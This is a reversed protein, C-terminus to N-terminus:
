WIGLRVREVNNADYVRILSNNIEMRQGSTSSRIVITGDTGVQFRSNINMSGATVHGLNASIASLQQVNIKDATLSSTVIAGGAIQTAGGVQWDSLETQFDGAQSLYARTFMFDGGTEGAVNDLRIMFRVAAANAPATVIGGLKEFASLSKIPTTTANPASQIAAAAFNISAGNADLFNLQVRAVCKWSRVYAFAEYKKGPLVPFDRITDNGNRATINLNSIATSPQNVYFTGGPPANTGNNIEFTGGSASWYDTTTTSADSNDLWNGGVGFLASRASISGDAIMNGNMVLTPTGNVNGVAFMQKPTAANGGGGPKVIKFSDVLFTMEALPVGNNETAILGYGSVYGNNDVKVTYKSEINNDADIRAQAEIAIAAEIQDSVDGTAIEEATATRVSIRHFLISKAAGPQGMATPYNGLVILGIDSIAESSLEPYPLVMRCVYRNSVGQREMIETFKLPKDFTTAGIKRLILGSANLSGSFLQLDVEVVYHSSNINVFRSNAGTSSYEMLGFNATTSTVNFQMANISYIADATNKVIDSNAASGWLAFGAPLPGTWEMFTPNLTLMAGNSTRAAIIASQAASASSGAADSASQASNTESVSANSASQSAANASNTSIGAQSTATAASSEATQAATSAQGASTSANSASTQANTASTESASAYQQAETESVEAKRASEVAAQAQRYPFAADEGLVYIYDIDYVLSGVNALDFRLQTITSNIWDNAPAQGPISADIMFYANNSSNFEMKEWGVPRLFYSADWTRNTTTYFVRAENFDPIQGTVLNVRMVIKSYIQGSFSLGSPSMASGDAATHTVRLQGAVNSLTSNRGTFGMLTGDNFDWTGDPHTQQYLAFRAGTEAMLKEYEAETVLTAADIAHQQAANASDSANDKFLEAADAETKAKQAEAEAKDAEAKAKAAELEAKAADIEAQVVALQVLSSDPGVLRLSHIRYTGAVDSMKFRLGTTTGDNWDALMDMQFVVFRVQNQALSVAPFPAIGRANFDFGQTPTQTTMRINQPTGGSILEIEVVFHTYRKGDIPTDVKWVNTNASGTWEMYTKGPPIVATGNTVRWNHLSDGAFFETYYPDADIYGGDTPGGGGGGGPGVGGEELMTMNDNIKGFATRVDDATFTSDETVTKDFPFYDGIVVRELKKEEDAM